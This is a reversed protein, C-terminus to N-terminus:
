LFLGAGMLLGDRDTALIGLACRADENVGTICIGVARECLEAFRSDRIVV